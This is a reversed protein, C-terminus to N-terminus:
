CCLHNLAPTRCTPELPDLLAKVNWVGTKEFVDSDFTHRPFRSSRLIRVELVFVTFETLLLKM